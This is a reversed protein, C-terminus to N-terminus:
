GVSQGFVQWAQGFGGCASKNQIWGGQGQTVSAGRFVGQSIAFVVFKEDGHFRVLHGGQQRLPVSVEWLQWEGDNTFQDIGARAIGEGAAPVM